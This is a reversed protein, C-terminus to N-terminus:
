SLLFCEHCISMGFAVERQYALELGFGRAKKVVLAPHVRRLRGPKFLGVAVNGARRAMVLFACTATLWGVYVPYM